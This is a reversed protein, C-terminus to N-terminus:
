RRSGCRMRGSKGAAWSIPACSRTPHQTSMSRSPRFRIARLGSSVPNSSEPSSATTRINLASGTPPMMMVRSGPPPAGASVGTPAAFSVSAGSAKGASPMMESSVPAFDAVPGAKMLPAAEMLTDRTGGTGGSNGAAIGDRSQQLAPSVATIERMKADPTINPVILVVALGATVLGSTGLFFNRKIKKAQTMIWGDQQKNRGEQSPESTLRAPDSKEQTM